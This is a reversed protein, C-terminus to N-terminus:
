LEVEQLDEGFSPVSTSMSMNNALSRGPPESSSFPPGGLMDMSPRTEGIMPNCLNDTYTAGWSAARSQSPSLGSQQDLMAIEKSAANVDNMSPFPHISHAASSALSPPPSSLSPSSTSTENAAPEPNNESGISEASHVTDVEVSAAITPIFFKATAGGPKASPLGSSQFTCVPVGGGKNFTDVYRSRVGLRGRASFQNMSAPPMLPISSSDSAPLKKTEIVGDLSLSPSKVADNRFAATTPPPALEAAEAPPDVGEEVWRKLKEDYYFKNREGLKAQRRRSVLSIATQLLHAGFRGLRTPSGTSSAKGQADTRSTQANQKPSRGIAPESISRTPVSARNSDGSWESIPEMSSSPMLSTIGTRSSENSMKLVASGDDTEGNQISGETVPPLPPLPAGIICHISRDISTLVKGMLKAPALNSAYGGQQHTRLREELSSTLVKCTEVDATHGANKLQKLMAQCYRLSESVKGVEALMHAYVLKYPQFTQLTFQSNGLAKAYEYLETRQIADPSAYTRPMKWHDAGILCLRATNSFSEFNAEAVLYCAHAATVKGTEKWLCDGLRVIVLEDDKTRNALMIALNEEWDDLMSTACNQAPLQSVSLAAAQRPSGITESSFVDAQQGSILLCLTRLPSGSIFQRHAMQKVTEVYFKDGLKGALVLAPGWLQGERACQLAELRCGAVLLKQVEIATSQMQEESPLPQLCQKCAGVGYESLQMNNRRSSTFLKTVASEPGDIEQSAAEAGFPSRLNGYHLCSIKLLSLLLLLSERKCYGINHSECSAISEDIWKHVDKNAVNGGLLPGPFSQRCLSYFYDHNSSECSGLGSKVVVVDMLNHVSVIGGAADQNELTTSRNFLDNVKMVVLKGGFGFTVLAHLPRGSSTRGQASNPPVSAYSLHGAQFHKKKHEDGLYDPGHYNHYGQMVNSTDCGHADKSFSLNHHSGKSANNEHSNTAQGYSSETEPIKFTVQQDAYSRMDATPEHMRGHSLFYENSQQDAAIKKSAGGSSGRDSSWVEPQFSGPQRDNHIYSGFSLACGSGQEQKAFEETQSVEKSITSSTDALANVCSVSDGYTNQNYVQEFDGGVMQTSQDFHGDLQHWKETVTDFYWGPYQEYFFMHSPYGANGRFPQNQESVEETRCEDAITGLVSQSTPQLHSFETRNLLVNSVTANPLGNEQSNELSDTINTHSTPPEGRYGDLQHWEGIAPDYKWGPYLKEWDENSYELQEDAAQAACTSYSQADSKYNSEWRSSDQEAIERQSHSRYSNNSVVSQYPYQGDMTADVQHKKENIFGTEPKSSISPFKSGQVDGALVATDNLTLLDSYSGFGGLDNEANKTLFSSWQVERVSTMAPRSAKGFSFDSESGNCDVGNVAGESEMKAQITLSYASDESPQSDEDPGISNRVECSGATGVAAEETTAESLSESDSLSLNAFSSVFPLGNNTDDSDTDKKLGATSCDSIGFEGVVLKDFFDEDTQDEMLITSTDM